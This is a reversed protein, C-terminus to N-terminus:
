DIEIARLIAPKDSLSKVSIKIFGNHSRIDDFRIDASMPAEAASLVPDYGAKVKAGNIYIDM